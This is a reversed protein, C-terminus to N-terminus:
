DDEPQPLYGLGILDSYTAVEFTNQMAIDDTIQQRGLGGNEICSSGNFWWRELTQHKYINVLTFDPSSTPSRALDDYENLKSQADEFSNFKLITIM